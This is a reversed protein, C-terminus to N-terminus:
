PVFSLGKRNKNEQELQNRIAQELTQKELSLKTELQQTLTLSFEAERKLLNEKEAHLKAEAIIQKQILNEKEQALNAELVSQKLAFEQRIKNELDDNLAQNINIIHRCKPCVITNEQMILRM